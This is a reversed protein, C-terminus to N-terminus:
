VLMVYRFRLSSYESISYDDLIPSLRKFNSRCTSTSAKPYTFLVVGNSSDEVLKKLTVKEGDNTEIEGGFNEIDIADGVAVKTALTSGSTGLVDEVKSASSRISNAKKVPPLAAAGAPAKRKRLEPM